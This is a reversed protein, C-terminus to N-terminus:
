LRVTVDEQQEDAEAEKQEVLPEKQPEALELTARDEIESTEKILMKAQFPSDQKIVLAPGWDDTPKLLTRIRQTFSGDTTALGILMFIPIPLISVFAMMWGITTAWWPYTYDGYTVNNFKVTTVVLVTFLLAPTIFKWCVKWWLTPRYGIMEEINGYFREAGYFWGIVICELWGIMILSFTASYWDMVQFLYIGGQTVLPLSILFEVFCMVAVFTTKRKSLAKPFTDIFGSAMTEFMGFQTDLGLILLMLFFIVSWFQSIPLQSLAEPYVVFALGPGSTIVDEVGVGAQDAMFGIISFIAFGAMFSTGCNICPIIIADKYCDSNFKNYSAMTILSGYAPGLSYFIQACAEMWVQYDLLRDWEPTLYYRVGIMAGPLTIGRVLFVLLMLYPAVATVYVVKGSTKIGKSLCLFVLLWAGIISLLLQWRFQGMNEIGTTKELVNYHWFEEAPTNTKALTGNGTDNMAKIYSAITAGIPSLAETSNGETGNVDTWRKLGSRQVCHETNWANNCGTWPLQHTTFSMCMYYIAWALIVNYYICVIGSVLASGYGLGAM